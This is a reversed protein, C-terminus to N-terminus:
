HFHIRHNIIKVNHYKKIFNDYDKKTLYIINANSRLYCKSSADFFSCEDESFYFKYFEDELDLSISNVFSKLLIENSFLIVKCLPTDEYIPCKKDELIISYAKKTVFIGKNKTIFAIKYYNESQNFLPYKKGDITHMYTLGPICEEEMYGNLNCVCNLNVSFNNKINQKSKSPIKTQDCSWFILSTLSVIILKNM